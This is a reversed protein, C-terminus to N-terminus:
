KVVLMRNSIVQNDAHVCYIYQGTSLNSANYNMTHVGPNQQGLSFVAVQQGLMNYIKVVVNSSKNLGYTITTAPNFPNPYNQNVFFQTPVANDPDDVGVSIKLTGGNYAISGSPGLTFPITNDFEGAKLDLVGNILTSQSHLVGSANNITLNNVTTPLSVSTVQAASGNFIYNAATSLINGGGNSTGTCQICGTIGDPHGTELTAGDLLIFSGTNSSGIVSTGMNLTTGSEVQMTFYSSGGGYAVNSLTLNQTGAKAFILKNVHFGGSNQVTANTISVDGNVYIKADPASGRSVSFIGATVVINGNVYLTITDGNTTSSGSGNTAFQGGTQYLNGNITVPGSLYNGPSTIYIRNSAGSRIVSFDGGLTNGTMSLDVNATQGSCDWVFNYFNQNANNPKSGNVYGTIMCTSGTEWLGTPISGNIEAHNYVGGNAFTLNTTGGMKGQNKLTDSITVLGDVYVSDGSKITIVESGTPAQTATVWSSGDYTQWSSAASWAGGVTTNSRYDGTVQAAANFSFVAVLCIVILLTYLTKM